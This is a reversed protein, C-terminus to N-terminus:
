ALTIQWTRYWGWRARRISLSVLGSAMRVSTVLQDFPTETGDVMVGGMGGDIGVALGWGGTDGMVRDGAGEGTGAGVWCRVKVGIRGPGGFMSRGRLDGSGMWANVSAWGFAEAGAAAAAVAVFCSVEVRSQVLFVRCVHGASSADFCVVVDM